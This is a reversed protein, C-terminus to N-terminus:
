KRAAPGGDTGPVAGVGHTYNIRDPAVSGGSIVFTMAEDVTWDTSVLNEVPVIELYGSTPNPTTPVYVAALERGTDADRFVRTVLGVTKMNETPFNILVVRQLNDPKKQLAAVLKKTSGYVTQVMPIREMISDFLSLLRRGLVQTAAWGLLYVAVLTLLVAVASQFWPDLLWQSVNPAVVQLTRSLARVWPAGIASLQRLIFDFVVVTLWIPIVTLIGAIIYRRFHPLIQAGRENKM